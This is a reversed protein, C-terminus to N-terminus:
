SRGQLKRLLQIQGAHYVDHAAVGYITRFHRRLRIADVTQVAERLLRHQENLVELDRRLAAAREEMVPFFNRGPRPFVAGRDGTLRKRAVFKWYACHLVLERISNREVSPKWMSEALSLGRLVARLTPGHWGKSVFAEDLIRVLLARETSPV